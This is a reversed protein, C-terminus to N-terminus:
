VRGAKSWYTDCVQRTYGQDMAVKFFVKRNTNGARYAKIAEFVRACKKEDAFEALAAVAAREAKKAAKAAQMRTVFDTM